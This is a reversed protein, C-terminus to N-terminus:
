HTWDGYKTTLSELSPGPLDAIGESNLMRFDTSM